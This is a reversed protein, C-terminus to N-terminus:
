AAEHKLQEKLRRIFGGLDKRASEFDEVWQAIRTADVDAFEILNVDACLTTADMAMREIIRNPDHRHTGGVVRDAHIVIGAAKAIKVVGEHGIGLASAIQHSSFGREAMDAVDKRRQAVAAKSKDPGSAVGLEKRTMAIQHPHANLRDRIAGSSEGALVAATIAKQKESVVGRRAPRVVGDKGVVHESLRTGAQELEKRVDQVWKRSCGLQAAIENMSREPWTLFALSIAHKKDGATMHLGNTKNAGLAFWLADQKTGPRVDAPIDRFQNRLAAQTRHFGDALYYNLSGDERCTGDSFVVIPPFVVGETMREAYETVVAENIAARIQTGADIVIHNVAITSM